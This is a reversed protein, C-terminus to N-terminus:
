RTLRPTYLLRSRVPRPNLAALFQPDYKMGAVGIGRVDTAFFNSEFRAAFMQTGNVTEVTIRQPGSLNPIDIREIHDRFDGGVVDVIIYLESAGAEAPTVTFEVTNFTYDWDNPAFSMMNIYGPQWTEIKGNRVAIFTENLPFVDFWLKSSSLPLTLFPGFQEYSMLARDNTSPASGGLYIRVDPHKIDLVQAESAVSACALASFLISKLRM